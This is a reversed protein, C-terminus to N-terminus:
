VKFKLRIGLLTIVTHRSLGAGKSYKVSFINELFNNKKEEIYRRNNEYLKTNLFSKMQPQEWESGDKCKRNRLDSYTPCEIQPINGLAIFHSSNICYPLGCECGVACFNIPKDIDKYFNQTYDEFYCRKAEGTTLDLRFSWDGAYCFENRKILFNKNTFNWLPSNFSEGLKYYSERSLNSLIKIEDSMEDRTLAIQPIAGVNDMCLQKMTELHPIYEDYMNFQVLFSCGAQRVLNINKFFVDLLNRDRLELYHFSFSFTLRECFEKPFSSIEEFRETITGNTTINVYHGANLLQYAVKVVEEPLLTEGAGCINFLCIGGLRKKSLAKAIYEPSYEFKPIKNTRYDNQIVYCYHCRLNCATVPVICEIFRKIKDKSMINLKEM